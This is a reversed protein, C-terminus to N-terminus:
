SFPLLDTCFHAGSLFDSLIRAIVTSIMGIGSGFLVFRSDIGTGSCFCRVVLCDNNTYKFWETCLVFPAFM